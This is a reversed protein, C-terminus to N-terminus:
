KSGPRLFWWVCRRFSATPIDVSDPPRQLKIERIAVQGSEITLELLGYGRWWLPATSPVCSSRVLYRGLVSLDHNGFVGLIPAVGRALLAKRPDHFDGYIFALCRAVHPGLEYALAQATRATHAFIVFLGKWTRLTEWVFERQLRRSLEVSPYPGGYTALPSALGLLMVGEVERSWWLSGLEEECTAVSEPTLGGSSLGLKYGGYGTDHNGICWRVEPACTQLEDRCHILLARASPHHCGQEGYGGTIDGLHVILDWPGHTQLWELTTRFAREIEQRMITYLVRRAIPTMKALQKPFLSESESESVTLHTDAVCAIKM